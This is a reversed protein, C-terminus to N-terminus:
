EDQFVHWDLPISIGHACIINVVALDSALFYLVLSLYLRCLGPAWLWDHTWFSSFFIQFCFFETLQCFGGLGKMMMLLLFLVFMSISRFHQMYKENPCGVVDLKMTVYLCM